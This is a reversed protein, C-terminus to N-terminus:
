VQVPLTLKLPTGGLTILFARIIITSGIAKTEISDIRHLVENVDLTHRGALQILEKKMQELQRHQYDTFLNFLDGRIENILDNTISQGIFSDLEQGNLNGGDLRSGITPTMSDIGIKELVLLTLDQKLKEVGSM